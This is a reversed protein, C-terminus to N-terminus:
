ETLWADLAELDWRLSNGIKRYCNSPIQGKSKRQALATVTMQLYTAAGKIDTWRTKIVPNARLDDLVLKATLRAYEELMPKFQLDM